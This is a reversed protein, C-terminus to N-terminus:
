WSTREVGPIGGQGAVERFCIGCLGVRRM